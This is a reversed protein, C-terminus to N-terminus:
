DFLIRVKILRCQGFRGVAAHGRSGDARGAESRLAEDRGQTGGERAARAAAVTRVM